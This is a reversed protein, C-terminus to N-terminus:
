PQVARWKAGRGRGEVTVLGATRMQRLAARVQDISLQYEREVIFELQGPRQDLPVPVRRLIENSGCGSPALATTRSRKFAVGM